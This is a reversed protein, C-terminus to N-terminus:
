KGDRAEKGTGHCFICKRELLSYCQDCRYVGWGECESCQVEGEVQKPDRGSDKVMAAHLTDAIARDLTGSLRSYPRNWEVWASTAIERCQEKTLM